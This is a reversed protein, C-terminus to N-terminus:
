LALLPFILKGLIGGGVAALGGIKVGALFGVPGGLCTGLFAGALPYIQIGESSVFHIEATCNADRSTLKTLLAKCNDIDTQLSEWEDCSSTKSSAQSLDSKILLADENDEEISEEDEEEYVVDLTTDRNHHSHLNLQRLRSNLCHRDFNKDAAKHKRRRLKVRARTDM